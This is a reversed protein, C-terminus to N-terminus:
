RLVVFFQGVDHLEIGGALKIEVIRALGEGDVIGHLIELIVDDVLVESSSKPVPLEAAGLQSKRKGCRGRDGIVVLVDELSGSPIASGVREGVDDM